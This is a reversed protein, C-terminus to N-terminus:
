LTESILDSLDACIDHQKGDRCSYFLKLAPSTNFELFAYNHEDLPTTYDQIIIDVVIFRASLATALTEAITVYTPHVKDLVDYVSAGTKIMTSRSLELVKGMPVIEDFNLASFDILTEDLQPYTIYPLELAARELNEADLLERVTHEGDGVLRPTQRLIAAQVTGNVVTFRIEDGEVQSQVLAVNAIAHATSLAVELTPVTRVQLTVGSSGSANAPKVVLPAYQLLSRMEDDTLKTTVQTTHPSRVGLSTALEHALVKNRSIGRIAPTMFQYGVQANRTLWSKGSPATFRTYSKGDLRLDEALFNRELLAARMLDISDFNTADTM